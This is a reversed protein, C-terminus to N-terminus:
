NQQYLPLMIRVSSLVMNGPKLDRHFYGNNHMYVLGQLIQLVLKRIEEESLPFNREKILDYLNCDQFPFLILKLLVCIWNVFLLERFDFPELRCIFISKESVLFHCGSCICHHWHGLWHVVNKVFTITVFIPLHSRAYVSCCIYITTIVTIIWKDRLYM